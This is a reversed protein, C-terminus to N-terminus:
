RVLFVAFLVIPAGIMMFVDPIEKLLILAIVISIIIQLLTFVASDVAGLKRVAILYLIFAGSTCVIGLYSILAFTQYSINTFRPLDQFFLGIFFVVVVSYVTSSFYVSVPNLLKGNMKINMVNESFAVYLGAFLGGALVLLAGYISISGARIALLDGLTIIIVGTFGASIAAIEKRNITKKLLLRQFVPTFLVYTNMMITAIGATTSVQGAYQFGYSLGNLVGLLLIVPMRLTRFVEARIQKIFMLPFLSLLAILFRLFLFSFPSLDMESFGYRVTSFTTGWFLSAISVSVIAAANGAHKRDSTKIESDIRKHGEMM